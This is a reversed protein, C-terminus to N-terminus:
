AEEQNKFYWTAGVGVVALAVGVGGLMTAGVAKAAFAGIAIGAGLHGATMVLQEKSLMEEKTLSLTSGTGRTPAVMPGGVGGMSPVLAEPIAIKRAFSYSRSM